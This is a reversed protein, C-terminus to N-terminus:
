GGQLQSLLDTRTSLYQIAAVGIIIVIISVIIGIICLIKAVRSWDNKMIRNQKSSLVLGVIGAVIGVIPQLLAFIVCIIAISWALLGFVNNEGEKKEM